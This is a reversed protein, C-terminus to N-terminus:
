PTVMSDTGFGISLPPTTNFREIHRQDDSVSPHATAIM